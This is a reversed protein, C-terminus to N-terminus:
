GRRQVYDPIGGSVPIYIYIYIYIFAMACVGPIDLPQMPRGPHSNCWSDCIHSWSATWSRPEGVDLDPIRRRTDTVSILGTGSFGSDSTRFDEHCHMSAVMKVADGYLRFSFSASVMRVSFFCADTLLQLSVYLWCCSLLSLNLEFFPVLGYSQCCFVSAAFQSQRCVMHNTCAANCHGRM